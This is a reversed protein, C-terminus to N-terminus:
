SQMVYDCRTTSASNTEDYRIVNTFRIDIPTLVSKEVALSAHYLSHGVSFCFSELHIPSRARQQPDLCEISSFEISHGCGLLKAYAEKRTWLRIFERTRQPQRYRLLIARERLSCFDAVISEELDQDICEVDVGLQLKPSAAVIIVTDAHSISFSIQPLPGSIVPKGLPTTQFHWDQPAIRWEVMQSLGLRSLIKAAMTSNRAARTRLRALTNWDDDTLMKLLEHAHLLTDVRSLWLCVSSKQDVYRLDADQPRDPTIVKRWSESFNLEADQSV